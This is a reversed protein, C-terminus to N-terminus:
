VRIIRRISLLPPLTFLLTTLLGAGLGQIAAALEM